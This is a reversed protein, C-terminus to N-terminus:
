KRYRPIRRNEAEIRLPLGEENYHVKGYASIRKKWLDRMLEILEDPVTCTIARNWIPESIAFKISGRANLTDM